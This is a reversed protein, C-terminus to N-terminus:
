RERIRTFHDPDIAVIFAIIPKAVRPRWSGNYREDVMYRALRESLTEWVFIPKGKPLELFFLSGLINNFLGDFFLFFALFAQAFRRKIGTLKPCLKYVEFALVFWIALIFISGSIWNYLLQM